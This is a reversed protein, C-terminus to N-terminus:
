QFTIYFHTGVELNSVWFARNKIDLIQYQPFQVLTKRKKEKRKRKKGLKTINFTHHIKGRQGGVFFSFNTLKV